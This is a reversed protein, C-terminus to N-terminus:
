SRWSGCRRTAGSAGYALTYLVAAVAAAGVIYAAVVKTLVGIGGFAGALIAWTWSARGEKESWRYLAYFTLVIWMVMGPDPQFSRSAQVAFPLILYYGLAVLGAWGSVARAALDFLALGAISWFLSNNFARWGYLRRGWSCTPAPLSTSSSRPSTSVRPAASLSPGTVCTKTSTQCCATICARAILARATAAHRPFRHAPRDPRVPAPWFGLALLALAILWSLTLTRRSVSSQSPPAINTM